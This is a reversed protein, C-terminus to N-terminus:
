QNGNHSDNPKYGNANSGNSQQTPFIVMRESRVWAETTM